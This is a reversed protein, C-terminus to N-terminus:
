AAKQKQLYERVARRVFQTLTMDEQRAAEELKHRLWPEVRFGVYISKVDTVSKTKRHKM